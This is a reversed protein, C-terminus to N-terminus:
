AANTYSPILVKPSIFDIIATKPKPAGDYTFHVVQGIKITGLLTEPVFFILKINKPALLSVLPQGAPAFEGSRYYVDFVLGTLPSIIHKQQLNWKAQSVAAIAAYVAAKEVTMTRSGRRGGVVEDPKHSTGQLMAAVRKETPLIIPNFDTWERDKFLRRLNDETDPELLRPEPAAEPPMGTIKEEETLPQTLGDIIAQMM